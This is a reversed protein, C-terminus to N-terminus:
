QSMTKDAHPSAGDQTAREELKELLPSQLLQQRMMLTLVPMQAAYMKQTKQGISMEKPWTRTISPTLAALTLFGTLPSAIGTDSMNERMEADATRWNRAGGSTKEWHLTPILHPNQKKFVYSSLECVLKQPDAPHINWTRIGTLDETEVEQPELTCSRHVYLGKFPQYRTDFDAVAEQIMHRRQEGITEENIREWLRFMGRKGLAHQMTMLCCFLSIPTEREMRKLFSPRTAQQKPFTEGMVQPCVQQMRRLADMMAYRCDQNKSALLADIDREREQPSLAQVSPTAPLPLHPMLTHLLLRQERMFLTWPEGLTQHMRHLYWDENGAEQWDDIISQRSFPKQGSSANCLDVLGKCGIPELFAARYATGKEETQSQLLIGTAPTFAGSQAITQRDAVDLLVTATQQLPM